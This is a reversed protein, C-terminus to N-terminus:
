GLLRWHTPRQVPEGDEGVWEQRVPNFSVRAESGDPLKGEILAGQPPYPWRDMEQWVTM